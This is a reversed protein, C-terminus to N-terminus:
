WASQESFTMKQNDSVLIKIKEILPSFPLIELPPASYTVEEPLIFWPSDSSDFNETDPPKKWVDGDMELYLIGNNVM